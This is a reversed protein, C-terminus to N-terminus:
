AYICTPAHKPLGRRRPLWRLHDRGRARASSVRCMCRFIAAVGLTLPGPQAARAGGVESSLKLMFSPNSTRLGSLIQGTPRSWSSTCSQRRERGGRCPTM